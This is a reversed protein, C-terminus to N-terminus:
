DEGVSIDACMEMAAQLTNWDADAPVHVIFNINYNGNSRRYLAFAGIKMKRNDLMLKLLLDKSVTVDSRLITWVDRFRADLYKETNSNIFVLNGDKYKINFDLEDDITYKIDNRDLMKKISTDLQPDAAHLNIFLAGLMAALLLLLSKKM